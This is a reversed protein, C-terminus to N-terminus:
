DWSGRDAGAEAFVEIVEPHRNRVLHCREARRSKSPESSVSAPHTEM